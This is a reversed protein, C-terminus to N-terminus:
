EFNQFLFVFVSSPGIKKEGEPRAWGLPRAVRGAGGACPESERERVSLRVGGTM